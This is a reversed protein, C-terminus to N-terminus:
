SFNEQALIKIRQNNKQLVKLIHLQVKLDKVWKILKEAPYSYPDLERRRHLYM